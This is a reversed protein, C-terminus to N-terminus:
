ANGLILKEPFRIEAEFIGTERRTSLSAGLMDVLRTLFVLGKGSGESSQLSEESWTNRCRFAFTGASKEWFVEIPQVGDSYKLANYILESFSSFFFTFRTSNSHFHLEADQDIHLKIVDLHTKVWGFLAATNNADVDLPVVEEMFSKRISKVAGTEKYPLLRQLAAQHNASFVLQSLTQRLSLALVVTISSDGDVDGEWNQRLLAPDAIYLKFTKLLQQAFLFTSFMAAINNIAKYERNNEYLESGLIRMAQRAAEPGSSLTNNLTHTLYSLMDRQAQERAKTEAEELEIDQLQHVAHQRLVQFYKENFIEKGEEYPRPMLESRDTLEKIDRPTAYIVRKLTSKLEERSGSLRGLQIQRVLWFCSSLDNGEATKRLWGYGEGEEPSGAEANGLLIAALLLGAQSVGQQAIERLTAEIRRCPGYTTRGDFNPLGKRWFNEYKNGLGVLFGLDSLDAEASEPEHLSASFMVKSLLERVDELPRKDEYAVVACLLDMFYPQEDSQELERCEKVLEASWHANKSEFAAALLGEKSGLFAGDDAYQILAYHVPSGENINQGNNAAEYLAVLNDFGRVMDRPLEYAGYFYIQYLARRAFVSGVNAAREYWEIAVAIDQPLFDFIGTEYCAGIDFMADVDGMEAQALVRAYLPAARGISAAHGQRAAQEYWYAAALWDCRSGQPTEQVYELGAEIMRAFAYQGQAYGKSASYEFPARYDELSSCGMRYYAEGALLVDPSDNAIDILRCHEDDSLPEPLSFEALIDAPIQVEEPKTEGTEQAQKDQLPIVQGM